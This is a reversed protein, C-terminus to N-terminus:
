VLLVRLFTVNSVLLVSYPTGFGNRKVAFLHLYM